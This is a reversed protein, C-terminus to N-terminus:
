DTEPRLLLAENGRLYALVDEDYGGLEYLERSLHDWTALATRPFREILREREDGDPPVQGGPFVEIARRLIDELSDLSMEHLAVLVRGAYCGGPNLFFQAHGGNGVEGTYICFMRL